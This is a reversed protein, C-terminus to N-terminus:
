VLAICVALVVAAALLYAGVGATVVRLQRGEDLRSRALL